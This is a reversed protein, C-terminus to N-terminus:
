PRIEVGEPVRNLIRVIRRTISPFFRCTTLVPPLLWPRKLTASLLRCISQEGAVIGDFSTRWQASFDDSWGSRVSGVVLPIIASAATLAWAMGEGTFPEVYGTADGLLFIRQGAIRKATRTLPLTGKIVAHGLEQPPLLGVSDFLCQLSALPSKTRHLHTPDIAAALDLQNDEVDVIGVYGFKAVAMLIEGRRIWDDAPTRAFVAGLGIRSGPRAVAEYDPLHQLSPHGLGDCVLVIKASVRGRASESNRPLPEMGTTPGTEPGFGEAGASRLDPQNEFHLKTAQTEATRRLAVTRENASSEHIPGSGDSVDCPLTEVTATVNQVVVCGSEMAENMLWQDFTRRSVAVSPPMPLDLRRHGYRVSLSGTTTPLLRQLGPELGEKRLIQVARGNLCGGCVKHRPFTQREILLTKLGQRACLLAAMSGAVGAGVVAVDFHQDSISEISNMLLEKTSDLSIMSHMPMKVRAIITEGGAEPCIWEIM